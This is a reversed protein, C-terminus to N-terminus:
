RSGGGCGSVPSCSGRLGQTIITKPFFSFDVQPAFPPLTCFQVMGLQVRGTEGFRAHNNKTKM